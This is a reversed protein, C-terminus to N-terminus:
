VLIEQKKSTRVEFYRNRVIPSTSLYSGAYTLTGISAGSPAGPASAAATWIGYLTENASPTRPWTVATTGGDTTAWGGFTYDTKISTNTFLGKNPVLQITGGLGAGYISSSPGKLIEIQRNIDDFKIKQNGLDFKSKELESKVKKLETNLAIIKIDYENVKLEITKYNSELRIREKSLSDRKLQLDKIEVKLLKNENKIHRDNSNLWKFLFFISMILLIIIILSKIDIKM